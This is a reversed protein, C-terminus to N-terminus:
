DYATLLLCVFVQWMHKKHVCVNEMYIYIYIYIYIYMCFGYLLNIFNLLIRLGVTRVEVDAVGILALQYLGEVVRVPIQQGESDSSDTCRIIM